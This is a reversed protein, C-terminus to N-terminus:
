VFVCVRMCDTGESWIGQGELEARPLSWRLNLSTSEACIPLWCKAERCGPMICRATKMLPCFQQDQVCLNLIPPGDMAQVIDLLTIEASPRALAIGGGSGRASALIGARSLRTVVRRVLAGPVRCLRAVEQATSRAGVPQRALFLVVRGAYDTERKIVLM